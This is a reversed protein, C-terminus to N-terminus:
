FRFIVRRGNGNDYPEASAAAYLPSTAFATTYATLFESDFDGDFDGAGIQKLYDIAKALYNRGEREAERGLRQVEEAAAATRGVYEKNEVDGNSVVTFGDDGFRVSLKHSAMLVTYNAVSRKLFDLVDVDAGNDDVVVADQTRIFQLLDRGLANSLYLEEVDTIFPILKWYTRFPQHLVYAKSFELGSKILRGNIRQYAASATWLAWDAKNKFLYELLIEIGDNAITKIANMLEEFEWRYLTPMENTTIRRAGSDTITAQLLGSNDTYAFAVLATRIHGLLILEDASLLDEGDYKTQLDAYLEKGIVPIIYKWAARDFNPLVANNSLKSLNPLVQKVEAVTKVLPM